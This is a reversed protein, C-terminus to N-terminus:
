GGQCRSSCCVAVSQRLDQDRHQHHVTGRRATGLFQWGGFRLLCSGGKLQVLCSGGESSYWSVAVRRVTGPFQWGPPWVRSWCARAAGSRAVCCPRPAPRRVLSLPAAAAVEPADDPYQLLSLADLCQLEAPADEGRRLDFPLGSAAPQHAEGETCVSSAQIGRVGDDIVTNGESQSGWTLIEAHLVDFVVGHWTHSAM